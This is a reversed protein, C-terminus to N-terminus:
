NSEIESVSENQVESLGSLKNSLSILEASMELLHEAIKKVEDNIDIM